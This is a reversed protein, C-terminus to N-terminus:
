RVRGPTPTASRGPPMTIREAVVRGRHRHVVWGDQRSIPDADWEEGRATVIEITLVRGDLDHHNTYVTVHHEEDIFTRGWRRPRDM